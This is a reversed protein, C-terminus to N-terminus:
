SIKKPYFVGIILFTGRYHDKRTTGMFFYLDNENPFKNFYKDKVKELAIEETGYKILMNRYLAYIEWDEIMIKHGKCGEGNCFFKYSFKYPIKELPKQKDGFLKGQKFLAQWEEKWGDAAKEIIFDTIERPKIIVLSVGNKVKEKLDEISPEISKLIIKKREEWNKASDIHGIIKIDGCPRYSEKRVDSEQRVVNTEILDYKKYQQAYPLHRFPVPYLRIWSGDEKIGATCVLEQYEKSPLPYTKVAILVRVKEIPLISGKKSMLYEM